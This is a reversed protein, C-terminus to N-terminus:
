YTHGFLLRVTVSASFLGTASTVTVTCPVARAVAVFEEPLKLMLAVSLSVNTNLETPKKVCSTGRLPLVVRETLRTRPSPVM